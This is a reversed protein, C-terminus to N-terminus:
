MTFREEYSAPSELISLMVVSFYVVDSNLLVASKLHLFYLSIVNYDVAQLSTVPTHKSQQNPNVSM